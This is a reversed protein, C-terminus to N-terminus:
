ITLQEFQRLRAGEKFAQSLLFLIIVAGWAVLNPALSINVTGTEIQGFINLILATIGKTFYRFGELLALIIAIERLKYANDPIFPDGKNLYTLISVLRSCILILGFFHASLSLIAPAVLRWEVQLKIGGIKGGFISFVAAVLSAFLTAAFLIKAIFNLANVFKLSWNSLPIQQMMIRMKMKSRKACFHRRNQAGFARGFREL